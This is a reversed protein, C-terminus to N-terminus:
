AAKLIKNVDNTTTPYIATIADVVDKVSVVKSNAKGNWYNENNRKLSGITDMLDISVDPNNLDRLKGFHEGLVLISVIAKEKFIVGHHREYLYKIANLIEYVEERSQIPVIILSFRRAMAKDKLLEESEENTTAVILTLSGDALAPKLTNAADPGSGRGQGAGMITHAEDIFLIINPNAQAEKILGDLRKEFQGRYQTGAVLTNMNVEYIIKDKLAEIEGKAILKALGNVIQTKGIGAEGVLLSSKKKRKLINVKLQHIQSERGICDDLRGEKAKQVLNVGFKDLYTTSKVEASFSGSSREEPTTGQIQELLKDFENM